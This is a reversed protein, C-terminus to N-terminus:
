LKFYIVDRAASILKTRCEKKWAPTILTLKLGGTGVDGHGVAGVDAGITSAWGSAAGAGTNKGGSGTAVVGGCCSCTYSSIASVAETGKDASAAGIIIGALAGGSGGLSSETSSTPGGGLAAGGCSGARGGGCAAAGCLPGGGGPGGMGPRGGGIGTRVPLM